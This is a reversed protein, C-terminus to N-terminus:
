GLDSNLETALCLDETGISDLLEAGLIGHTWIDVRSSSPCSFLWDDWPFVVKERFYSDPGVCCLIVMQHSDNHYFYTTMAQKV